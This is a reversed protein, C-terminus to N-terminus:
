VTNVLMVVGVAALAHWWSHWGLM